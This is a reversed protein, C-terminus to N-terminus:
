PRRSPTALRAVIARPDGEQDVMLDPPDFGLRELLTGTAGAQDGGLELLLWGGPRLWGVSRRAVEHLLATGNPGGDLALRPEFTQVDRPLLRIADTPVYPAVATMVDVRGRLASPLPEDLSGEFVEIGNDRACAAAVPDLETAVVRASPVAAALVVAIAGSGTCLDAGVGGTPLLAAARRALPETQARPVYVGPVIQIAIGCFTLAGTLWPLPEGNLRRAVLEELVAPDGASAGLLAEADEAPSPFGAQALRRAITTV